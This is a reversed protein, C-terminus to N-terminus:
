LSAVACWSPSPPLYCPLGAVVNIWQLHTIAEAKRRPDHQADALAAARLTWTLGEDVAGRKVLAVGYNLAPRPLAPAVRVAAAFLAEDSRWAQARQHTQWVCCGLLLAGILVRM